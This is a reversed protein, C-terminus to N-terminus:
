ASGVNRRGWPADIAAAAREVTSWLAALLRPGLKAERPGSRWSKPLRLYGEFQRRGRENLSSLFRVTTDGSDHSYGCLAAARVFRDAVIAIKAGVSTRVLRLVARLSPWAAYRGDSAWPPTRAGSADAAWHDSWKSRLREIFCRIRQMEPSAALQESSMLSFQRVAPACYGAAADVLDSCFEIWAEDGGAVLHRVLAQLRADFTETSNMGDLEVPAAYSICLDRLVAALQPGLSHTFAVRLHNLDPVEPDSDVYREQRQHIDRSGQLEEQGSAWTRHPGLLLYGRKDCYARPLELVFARYCDVAFRIRQPARSRTDPRSSVPKGEVLVNGDPAIRADILARRFRGMWPNRGLKIVDTVLWALDLERPLSRFSDCIGVVAAAHFLPSAVCPCHSALTPAPSGSIPATDAGAHRDPGAFDAAAAVLRVDSWPVPLTGLSLLGEAAVLRTYEAASAKFCHHFIKSLDMDAVADVARKISAILEEQTSPCDARVRHKTMAFFIEAPNFQPSQPRM